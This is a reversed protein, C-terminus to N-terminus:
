FKEEILLIYKGLGGRYFRSALKSIGAQKQAHNTVYDDTTNHATDPRKKLYGRGKDESGYWSKRTM